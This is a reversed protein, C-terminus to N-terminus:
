SGIGGAFISQFGGDWLGSVITWPNSDASIWALAGITVGDHGANLFLVNTPRWGARVHALLDAILSPDNRLYTEADVVKAAYTGAVSGRTVAWSAINRSSDVFQPDARVDNAGLGTTSTFMPQVVTAYDCYGLVGVVNNAANHVGNHSCTALTYTDSVTGTNRRSAIVGTGASLGVALNSRCTGMMGAHGAYTEGCSPAGSELGNYSTVYTNHELNCTVNSNGLWSVFQGVHNATNARPIALCRLISYTVPVSPTGTIWDGDAATIGDGGEMILGDVTLSRTGSLVVPHINSITGSAPQILLYSDTIDGPINLTTGSTLGRVYLHSMSAPPNDGSMLLHFGMPLVVYDLVFGRLAVTGIMAKDNSVYKITRAATGTIACSTNQTSTAHASNVSKINELKVEFDVTMSGPGYRGCGDLNAHTLSFKQSTSGNGSIALADNASDGIRLLDIYDCDVYGRFNAANIYGNGGGANSRLAARLSDSTNATVFRAVGAAGGSSMTLKYKQAFPSAALSADFEIIGGGEVQVVGNNLTDGRLVLTGGNRVRLTGYTTTGNITLVNNGAAPATGVIRLDTIDVIVNANITLTDGDTWTAGGLTASNGLNGSVSAVQSAM